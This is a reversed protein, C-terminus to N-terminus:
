RPQEPAADSSERPAANARRRNGGAILWYLGGLALLLGGFGLLTQFDLAVFDQLMLKRAVVLIAILVVARTQIAGSGETLAVFISHNFELLIVVTLVLGFTDQLAAKELFSGGLLFDAALRIASLIIAYVIITGVLFMVCRLAVLEFQGYTPLKRWAEKSFSEHAM